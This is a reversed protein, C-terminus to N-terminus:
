AADKGRFSGAAPRMGNTTLWTRGGRTGKRSAPAEPQTVGCRRGDSMVPSGPPIDQAPGHPHRRDGFHAPLDEARVPWAPLYTLALPLQYRPVCAASTSIEGTATDSEPKPAPSILLAAQLASPAGTAPTRPV